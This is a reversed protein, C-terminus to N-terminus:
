RKQKKPYGIKKIPDRYMNIKLDRKRSNGIMEMGVENAKGDLQQVRPFAGRDKNEHCLLV